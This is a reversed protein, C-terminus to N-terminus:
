FNPHRRALGVSGGFKFNSRASQVEKRVTSPRCCFAPTGALLSRRSTSFSSASLASSVPAMTRM